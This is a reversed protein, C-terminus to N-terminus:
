SERKRKLLQIKKLCWEGVGLILIEVFFVLFGILFSVFLAGLIAAIMDLGLVAKDHRSNEILNNNDDIEMFLVCQESELKIYGQIITIEVDELNHCVELGQEELMPLHEYLYNYDEVTAAKFDVNSILNTAVVRAFVIAIVLMIVMVINTADEKLWIWFKKM